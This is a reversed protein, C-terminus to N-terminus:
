RGYYGDVYGKEYGRSYEGFEETGREPGRFFARKYKEIDPSWGNNRAHSGSSAGAEYGKGYWSSENEVQRWAEAYWHALKGMGLLALGIVM